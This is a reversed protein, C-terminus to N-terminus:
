MWLSRCPLPNWNTNSAVDERITRRLLKRFNKLVTNIEVKKLELTQKRSFALLQRVLDRARIGANLIEDVSELKTDTSALDERPMEAYGLIPSLLNNLDHAVGGALRGISEVKQAQSLQAHLNIQEAEARKRETIDTAIGALALPTGNTDRVVQTRCDLAIERGDVAYNIVEGRWQGAELTRELIERQTAGQAPNEGYKEISAGILENRAVGLARVAPRHKM